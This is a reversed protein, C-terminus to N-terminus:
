DGVGSGSRASASRAPCQPFILGGLGYGTGKDNAQTGFGHGNTVSPSVLTGILAMLTGIHAM